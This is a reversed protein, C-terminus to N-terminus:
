THGPCRKGWLRALEVITLPRKRKAESYRELAKCPNSAPPRLGLGEAYNMVASLVAIVRNAAYRHAALGSHIRIADARDIRDIPLTGLDAALHKLVIRQYERLTVPKRKLAVHEALWREAFQAFTPM